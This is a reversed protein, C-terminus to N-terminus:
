GGEQQEQQPPAQQHEKEQAEAEVLAEAKKREMNVTNSYIEPLEVEFSLAEGTVPHDFAVGFSYLFLGRTRLTDDPGYRIDGLIPTGLGQACHVRLQHKRGTEPFLDM